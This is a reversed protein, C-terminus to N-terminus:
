GAVQGRQMLRPLLTLATGYVLLSLVVAAKIEQRFDVLLLRYAGLAMLLYVLKKVRVRCHALGLLDHRQYTPM